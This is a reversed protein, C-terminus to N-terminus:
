IVERRNALGNTVRNEAGERDIGDRGKTGYGM